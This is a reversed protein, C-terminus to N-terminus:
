ALAGPVAVTLQGDKKIGLHRRFVSRGAHGIPREANGERIESSEADDM